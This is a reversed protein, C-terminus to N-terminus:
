VHRVELSDGEKIESPLIGTPLELTNTSNFYFWTHRWPRLNQYIKIVKFQHDMFVVDLPFRMFFTHISIAPKFLIAPVHPSSRFMYGTFRSWFTDAIKTKSVIMQNKYRIEIM